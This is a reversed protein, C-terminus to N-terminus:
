SVMAPIEAPVGKMHNAVYECLTIFYDQEYNNKMSNVHKHVWQVNGKIYGKSSDIRDLSATHERMVKHSFNDKAFSIDLGSLACKGGQKVFLDWVYEKDITFEKKNTKARCKIENWHRAKLQGFKPNHKLCGCSKVHGSNLDATKAIYEGGCSCKLIWTRCKYRIPGNAIVTGSSFTKGILDPTYLCKCSKVDGVRLGHTSAHYENGCDCKLQWWVDRTRGISEKTVHKIVVGSGFREGVLNLQIKGAMKIGCPKLYLFM